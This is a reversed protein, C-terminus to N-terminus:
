TPNHKSPAGKLPDFACCDMISVVYFKAPNNNFSISAICTGIEMKELYITINKSTRGKLKTKIFNWEKITMPM